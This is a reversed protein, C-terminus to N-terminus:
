AAKESSSEVATLTPLSSMFETSNLSETRASWLSMASDIIAKRERVPYMSFGLTFFVLAAEIQAIDEAELVKEKKAQEYPKTVWGKDGLLILNTLRYMEALLGRQVEAWYAGSPDMDKCVDRLYKDAVKPAAFPGLNDMLMAAHAKAIPKYYKDFIDSSISRSHVWITNSDDIEIPIVINLSRDIKM